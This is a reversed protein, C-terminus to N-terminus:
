GDGDEQRDPLAPNRVDEPKQKIWFGPPFGEGDWAALAAEAAARDPFCFRTRYGIEDLGVHLGFTYLMDRIGAWEGTPLLRVPHYGARMLAAAAIDQALKRARQVDILRRDGAIAVQEAATLERFSLDDAFAMLHGCGICVTFDGPSPSNGTDVGTAADCNLCRNAVVRTTTGLATM